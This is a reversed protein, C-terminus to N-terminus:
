LPGGDGLQVDFALEDTAAVNHHFHKFGALKLLHQVVVLDGLDFPLFSREKRLRMRRKAWICGGLLFGGRVPYIRSPKKFRPPSAWLGPLSRRLEFVVNKLTVYADGTGFVRNRPNTRWVITVGENVWILKYPKGVFM